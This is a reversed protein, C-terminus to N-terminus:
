KQQRTLEDANNHELRKISKKFLHPLLLYLPMRLYHSRIYLLWRALGVRKRLFDPHEPLLALPVLYNMVRRVIISPRGKHNIIRDEPIPTGLLLKSFYLTYYLSRSLELEGARKNLKKWFGPDQHSFVTMLEHLDVLNRFDSSNLEADYFLHVASHLVMDCPALIKFHYGKVTIADKLLLEPDPHFRGTLPLLTHHIDVEIYRDRHRLPPIENM